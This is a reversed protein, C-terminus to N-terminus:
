SNHQVLCISLHKNSLSALVAIGNDIDYMVCRYAVPFLLVVWHACPLSAKLDCQHRRCLFIQLNANLSTSSLFSM